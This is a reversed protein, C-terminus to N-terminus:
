CVFKGIDFDVISFDSFDRKRVGSFRSWVYQEDSISLIGYSSFNQQPSVHRSALPQFTGPDYAPLPSTKRLRGSRDQARGVGRWLRYRNM